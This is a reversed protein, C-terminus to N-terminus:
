YDEISETPLGDLTVARVQSANSFFSPSRFLQPIRSDKAARDHFATSDYQLMPLRAAVSEDVGASIADEYYTRKLMM